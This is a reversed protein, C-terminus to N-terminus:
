EIQIERIYVDRDITSCTKQKKPIVDPYLSDRRRAVVVFVIVVCDTSIYLVREGWVFVVGTGEV